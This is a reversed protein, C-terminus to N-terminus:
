PQGRPPEDKLYLVRMWIKALVDVLADVDAEPKGVLEQFFRARNM